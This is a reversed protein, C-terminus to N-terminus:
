SIPKTLERILKERIARPYDAVGRATIVFGGPTIVRKRFYDSLNDYRGDAEIAIANVTVGDTAAKIRAAPLGNTANEKGDSSIDIVAQRCDTVAAFQKVSYLIAEGIATDSYENPRPINRVSEAFSIDDAIAMMRQWPIALKQHGVGSWHVMSLAVQGDLQFLPYAM